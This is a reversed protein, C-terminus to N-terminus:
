NKSALSIRWCVCVAPLPVLGVFRLGLCISGATLYDRARQIPMNELEIVKHRCLMVLVKAEEDESFSLFRPNGNIGQM